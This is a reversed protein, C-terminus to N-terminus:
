PVLNALAEDLETGDYISDLRETVTGDPAALFLSPEFDLGLADVTPATRKAQRDVYVEAHIVTIGERELRARRAVLLDLVPGCIAVQCFAPTSVLLAIPNSGGIAQDLSVAHFPCTPEATCIPNVGARDATTPTAVKPLVVGPGPIAPLETAPRVDVNAEVKTTGATLEITWRGDVDFNTRLPYYGRPLDKDHLAVAVPETESGDPRRLQVSVRRPLDVDFSGEGNALALPLRLDQGVPQTLRFTPVLLLGGGTAGPTTDDVEAADDDGGESKGCAAVILSGAGALLLQRRSLPVQV